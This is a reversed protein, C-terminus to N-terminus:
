LMTLFCAFCTRYPLKSFIMGRGLFISFSFCNNGLGLGQPFASSHKWLCHPIKNGRDRAVSPMLCGRIFSAPAAKWVLLCRYLRTLQPASSNFLDNATTFTEKWIEVPWVLVALYVGPFSLKRGELIFCKCPAKGSELLSVYFREQKQTWSISLCMKTDAHWSM